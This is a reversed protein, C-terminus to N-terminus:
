GNGQVHATEERRLDTRDRNSKGANCKHCLTQLNYLADTGGHSRPLIHDVELLVGDQRASRGCSCCTWRDRALVVWWLGPRIMRYNDLEPLTVSVRGTNDHAEPAPPEQLTQRYWLRYSELREALHHPAGHAIAVSAELLPYLAAFGEQLLGLTAGHVPFPYAPSLLAAEDISM